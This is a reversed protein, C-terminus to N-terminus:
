HIKVANRGTKQPCQYVLEMEKVLTTRCLECNEVIGKLARDFVDQPFASGLADKTAHLMELRGLFDVLRVGENMIRVYPEYLVQKDYTMMLSWMVALRIEAGSQRSSIHDLAPRILDEGPRTLDDAQTM